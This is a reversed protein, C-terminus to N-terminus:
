PKKKRIASTFKSRLSKMGKLTETTQDTEYEAYSIDTDVKRLVHEQRRLEEQIDAGKCAISSAVRVSNRLHKVTDNRVLDQYKKAASEAKRDVVSSRHWEKM